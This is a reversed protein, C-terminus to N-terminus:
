RPAANNPPQEATPQENDPIKDTQSHQGSAASQAKARKRDHAEFAEKWEESVKTEEVLPTSPVDVPLPESGMMGLTEVSDAQGDRVQQKVQATGIQSVDARGSERRRHEAVAVISKIAAQAAVRAQDNDYNKANEYKAQWKRYSKVEAWTWRSFTWCAETLDCIQTDAFNKGLIYVHDVMSPDYSCMVKWSKGDAKASSFWEELRAKSCTYRLSGVSIGDRMVTGAIVPLLGLRVMRPDSDHLQPGNLLGWAWIKYPIPEVHDRIMAPTLKYDPRTCTNYALVARVLAEQFEEKTLSAREPHKGRGPGTDVDPVAGPLWKIFTTNLIGFHREVLAKATPCYAKANVVQVGLQAGLVDSARSFMEGRDAFLSAPLGSAPWHLPDIGPVGWQECFHVKDVFANWIAMSVADYSMNFFTVHVGVVLTSFTDIVVYVIPRGVTIDHDDSMVLYVDATTADIQYIDGIGRASKTQDHMVERGNQEVYNEGMRARLSSLRRYHKNYYYRFQAMTPLQDAPKLDPTMAGNKMSSGAAFSEGLMLQYVVSLPYKKRTDYYDGIAKDFAEAVSTTVNIGVHANNVDVDGLKLVGVRHPGGRGGCKHLDPQLANPRAGRQWFRRLYKYVTTVHAPKGATGLSHSAAAQKIVAGSTRRDYVLCQPDEVLDRIVGYADDRRKRNAPTLSIELRLAQQYPDDQIAVASGTDLAEVVESIRRRFPWASKGETAICYYHEGDPHYCLVREFGDEGMWKILGKLKIEM